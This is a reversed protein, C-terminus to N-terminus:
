DDFPITFRQATKESKLTIEEPTISVVRLGQEPMLEGEKYEQGNIVALRAEGLEIYGDYYIPEPLDLRIEPQIRQPEGGYPWQYFPNRDPGMVVLELIHLKEPTLGLNEINRSMSQSFQRTSELRAEQQVEPVRAVPKIFLEFIGYIIAAVM